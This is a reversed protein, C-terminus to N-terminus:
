RLSPARGGPEVFLGRERFQKVVVERRRPFYQTLIRNTEARWFKELPQSEVRGAPGASANRRYDGWRAAEATLALAVSDALARYRDAAMEPTLPGGDFLASRARTAFLNRFEANESLAHFLRPPSEDDDFDLTDADPDRLTCEGDWVLFQLRGGPMRPRLAYWNATRDWDLNGAYYNLILYDALEPLDLYRGAEQYNSDEAVGANILRMMQNWAVEDGGEIKNAKRVDFDADLSGPNTALLAPGPHECLDYVGWYLGNLYLQV